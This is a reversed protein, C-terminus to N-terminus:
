KFFDSIKVPRLGRERLEDIIISLAKATQMRSAGEAKTLSGSDHMLIIDGGKAKRAKKVIFDVGPNRWDQTTITWLVISYGKNVLMRRMKQDYVGRPPRFFLPEEGTIEKIVMETLTIEKTQRSLKMPSMNLHHYGHNGIDHGEDNIRKVVEPYKEANSGTIFFTAKVKKEKLIDLIKNTYEPHPGDDFTIAVKKKSKGKRIVGEQGGLGVYTNIYFYFFFFMILATITILIFYIDKMDFKGFLGALDM